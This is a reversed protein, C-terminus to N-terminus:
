NNSRDIINKIEEFNISSRKYVNIGYKKCVEIQKEETYDNVIIINENKWVAIAEIQINDPLKIIATLLDALKIENNIFKSVDIGDIFSEVENWSDFDELSYAENYDICDRLHIISNNERKNEINEIIDKLVEKAFRRKLDKHVKQNNYNRLCNYCSSEEDCCNMNVKNYAMKFALKLGELDLMRKVHGAGGPVNDFVIIEYWGDDNKNLIANIDKREIDFAGSIGELLAYMTSLAKRREVLGAIKIKVVDTKFQHGLATKELIESTCDFGNCNKHKKKKNNGMTKKDLETYGCYPCKFFPNTNMVLLTDDKASEIFVYNNFSIEDNNNTGEGIYNYDGSYTKKPKQTKSDKNKMDTAFGFIPEVFYTRITEEHQEGCYKCKQINEAVLGVNIRECHECEYYYYKSLDMDYKPKLVYRSTLKKKDVIVESDPAYESIAISLDRSLKYKSNFGNNDYVKLDVVDVPFGYKPIINFTSLSSIIEQQKIKRIENGYYKVNSDEGNKYAKEKAEELETIKSLNYDIFSQLNGDKKVVKDIWKNSGYINRIDSDLIREDIYKKLDEPKNKLYDIFETFGNECVLAEVDKYYEPHLKFFFGLAAATLHRLIIKENTVRFHPPIINGAIMKSPDNFYTFDHSSAGCFTLVFASSDNRRGARGARQVYNAPTPPVNRLFVNELKGIDVGMEFTTSCSLVNIKKNKFGRQYERGTDKDLQATHEKVVIREIEKNMYEKRYYNRKLEEDPDCKELIGTCGKTPCVNKVNYQTIKECVKCKYFEIKKYSNLIYKNADLQYLKEYDGQKEAFLGTNVAIGFITELFKNIKECDEIKTVRKVYDSMKNGRKENLPIFSLRNEGKTDDVRESKRERKLVVYNNFGRYGFEDKKVEPTLESDTYLLAASNRFIDFTVQMIKILENKNINYQNCFNNIDAENFRNLAAEIEKEDLQFAFIGLGEATNNGDINLLECMATIWAEQFNSNESDFLNNDEIVKTLRATLTPMKIPEHNNKRLEEWLLRKRLFRKHTYEFFSAFFSAQQRSDSFAIFQKIEKETKPKNEFNFNLSLKKEGSDESENDKKGLTEYLIQSLLATASDKSLHFGSVIGVGSSSRRTCCLCTSINNKIESEENKARLLEVEYEKGCNCRKANINNKGFVTGCKSCVIYEEVDDVFKEDIESNDKILFYDVNINEIDGYNEDIDIDANQHLKCGNQNEYIKGIIYMHNCYRCLGIEFAKMGDIEKHNTLRIKKNKGLTIFAGDLTRIFTHYKSDFLTKGNKNAKTILQILDILQQNSMSINKDIESKIEKFTKKKANKVQDYLLYVNKDKVLLEYIMEEKSKCDDIKAYEQIIRRVKDIDQYNEIIETYKEPKVSYGIEKSDLPVRKAFVIDDKSYKRSTLSEAFDIIKDIDKREDGLTASTLIFQPERNSIGTVRRMLLAIEIGLAGTYTHAEDLVVFQWKDIYQSTFINFDSPRILLHELMSYNTFLLNPPNKRIEERTVIENEPIETEYKASLKERLNENGKELTEGTFCGYTIQPYNSLIERVREIQDNVLANMPYLFLARIGPGGKGEEIEKLIHNLIPYLFSETKGSGTGTTIVANHGQGIIELAKEQHQYLKQDMNIKSLKLFEKSIKGEDVLENISHGKEFPLESSLFPGKCLEARELEKQFEKEYIDDEIQFTSKVYERFEKEIYESQEIPNLKKL